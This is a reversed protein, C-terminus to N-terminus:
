VLSGGGLTSPAPSSTQPSPPAIPFQRAILNLFDIAKRGFPGVTAATLLVLVSLRSSWRAANPSAQAVLGLIGWLTLIAVYARPPPLKVGGFPDLNGITQVGLAALLTASLLKEGSM